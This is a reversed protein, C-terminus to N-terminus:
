LLRSSFYTTACVVIPEGLHTPIWILPGVSSSVSLCVMSNRTHEMTALTQHSAGHDIIFSKRTSYLPSFECLCVPTKPLSLKSILCAYGQIGYSAGSGLCVTFNSTHREM